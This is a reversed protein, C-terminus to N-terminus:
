LPVQSLLCSGRRASTRVRRPRGGWGDAAIISAWVTLVVSLPPAVAVVARLFNMPACAMAEHLRRTEQPTDEDM